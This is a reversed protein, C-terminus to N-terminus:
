EKKEEYIKGITALYKKYREVEEATDFIPGYHQGNIAYYLVYVKETLQFPAAVTGIIYVSPLGAVAVREKKGDIFLLASLPVCIMLALWMVSKM